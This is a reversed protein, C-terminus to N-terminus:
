GNNRGKAEIRTLTLEIYAGKEYTRVVEYSKGKYDLRKEGEYDDLWMKVKLALEYGAQSSSYFEREGVSYVSAMCERAQETLERTVVVGREFTEQVPILVILDNM